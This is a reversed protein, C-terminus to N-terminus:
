RRETPGPPLLFRSRPAGPDSRPWAPLNRNDTPVQTSCVNAREDAAPAHSPAAAPPHPARSVPRGRPAPHRSAHSLSPWRAGASSGTRGLSPSPPASPQPAPRECQGRIPAQLTTAPCSLRRSKQRWRTFCADAASGCPLWHGPFTRRRRPCMPMFAALLASSALFCNGCFYYFRSSCDQDCGRRAGRRVHARRRRSVWIRSPTRPFEDNKGRTGTCCPWCPCSCARGAAAERILARCGASGCIEASLGFRDPVM